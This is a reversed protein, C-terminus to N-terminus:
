RQEGSTADHLVKDLNTENTRLQVLFHRNPNSSDHRVPRTLGKLVGSGVLAFYADEIEDVKKQNVVDYNKSFKPRQRSHKDSESAFLGVFYLLVGCLQAQKMKKM